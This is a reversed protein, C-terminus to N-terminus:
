RVDADILRATLWLIGAGLARVVFLMLSFSVLLSAIKSSGHNAAWTGQAAAGTGAQWDIM